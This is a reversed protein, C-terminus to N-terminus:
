LLSVNIMREKRRLQYNIDIFINIRQNIRRNYNCNVLRLNIHFRTKMSTRRHNRAITVISQISRNQVLPNQESYMRRRKSEKFTTTLYQQDKRIFNKLKVSM